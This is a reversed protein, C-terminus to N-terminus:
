RPSARSWARGRRRGRAQRRRHPDERDEPSSSSRTPCSGCPPPTYCLRCPPRRRRPDAGSDTYEGGVMGSCTTFCGRTSSTSAPKRSLAVGGSTKRRRARRTLRSRMASAVRSRAKVSAWTSVGSSVVVPAAARRAPHHGHGDEPGAEAHEVGEELEHGPGLDAVEAELAVLLGRHRAAVVLLHGLSRASATTKRSSGISAM